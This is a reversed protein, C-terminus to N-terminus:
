WGTPASRTARGGRGGTNGDAAVRARTRCTSESGVLGLCGRRLHADDGLLGQRYRSDSQRSQKAALVALDFSEPDGVLAQRGRRRGLRPDTLGEERHYPREKRRERDQDIEDPAEQQIAAGTEGDPGDHSDGRQLAPQVRHGEGGTGTLEHSENSWRAAALGRHQTQGGPEIVGGRSLDADVPDVRLLQAAGRHGAEDSVYGLLAIQEGAGQSGVEDVSVGVGGVGLDLLGAPRGGDM